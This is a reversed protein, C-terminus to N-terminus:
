TPGSHKALHSENSATAATKRSRWVGAYPTWRASPIPTAFAFGYAMLAFSLSSRSQATAEAADILGNAAAM